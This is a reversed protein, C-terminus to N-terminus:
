FLQYPYEIKYLHLGQAPAANCLSYINKSDIINQIDSINIIDFGLILLLGVINRVMGRLFRNSKIFFIGNNKQKIWFANEINCITSNCHKNKKCFAAFDNNKQIIKAGLNMTNFNISKKNQILLSTNILYPNKYFHINYKYIRNIADYRSHYNSNVHIIKLISIDKPLICNVSKIVTKINILKIYDFHAFQNIAHVGTDTRSSGITKINYNLVISFSKDIYHQITNSTNIQKQWGNYNTGLYQIKIFYRFM